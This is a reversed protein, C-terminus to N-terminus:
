GQTLIGGAGSLLSSKFHMASGDCDVV